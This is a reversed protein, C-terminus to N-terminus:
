PTINGYSITVVKKNKERPSETWGITIQLPNNKEIQIMTNEKLHQNEIDVTESTHIRYAADKFLSLLMWYYDIAMDTDDVLLHLSISYGLSSGEHSKAEAVVLGAKSVKIDEYEYNSFEASNVIISKNLYDNRFYDFNLKSAKLIESPGLEIPLDMFIEKLQEQVSQAM